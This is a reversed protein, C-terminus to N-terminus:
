DCNYQEEFPLHYRKKSNEIIGSMPKSQLLILAINSRETSDNNHKKQIVQNCKNLIYM